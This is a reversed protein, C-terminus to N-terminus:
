SFFQAILQQCLKTNLHENWIEFEDLLRKWPSRAKNEREDEFYNCMCYVFRM